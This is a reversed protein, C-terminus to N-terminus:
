AVKTKGNTKGETQKASKFTIKRWIPAADKSDAINVYGETLEELRKKSSSVEALTDSVFASQYLGTLAIRATWAVDTSGKVKANANVVRCLEYSSVPVYTKEGNESEELTYVRLKRKKGDLALEVKVAVNQAIMCVKNADMLRRSWALIIDKGCYKNSKTHVGLAIMLQHFSVKTDKDLEIHQRIGSLQKAIQELSMTANIANKVGNLLQKSTFTAM